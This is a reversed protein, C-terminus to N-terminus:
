KKANRLNRIERGIAKSRFIVSFFRLVYCVPALWPCRNLIRYREKLRAFSPFMRKLMYRLKGSSEGERTLANLHNQVRRVETGHAGSTFYIDLIEKEEDTLEPEFAPEAFLKRALASCEAAYDWAGFSRLEREVYQWDMSEGQRDLFVYDDLLTRIGVGGNLYHKYGHAVMFIYFDERSFHYGYDNADDKVLRNKVAKYYDALVPNAYDAFLSHHMEMNYVPKKVYEDHNSKRYVVAEYGQSLLYDHIQEQFAEDFLIDNDSMQRMGFRPYDFQLLSGKLPMYWCGISELYALIRQRETNLLVNKRIAKDRTQRWQAMQAEGAPATKWIEELAMAVMATISHFRCFKYLEDLNEPAYRPVLNHLACGTLYSAEMGLRRMKLEKETM